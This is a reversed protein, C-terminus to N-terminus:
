SGMGELIALWALLDFDGGFTIRQHERNM